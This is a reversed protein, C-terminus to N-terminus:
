ESLHSATIEEGYIASLLKAVTEIKSTKARLLKQTLGKAAELDLKYPERVNEYGSPVGEGGLVQARYGEILKEVDAKLPVPVRIHTTEYPAKHGRGGVLKAM